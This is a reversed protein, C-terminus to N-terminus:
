QYFKKICSRILQNYYITEDMKCFLNRGLPKTHYTLSSKDKDWRQFFLPFFFPFLSSHGFLPHHIQHLTVKSIINGTVSKVMKVESASMPYIEYIIVVIIYSATSQKMYVMFPVAYGDRVLVSRLPSFNYFLQSQLM